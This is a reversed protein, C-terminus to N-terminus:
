YSGGQWTALTQAVWASGDYVLFAGTAPSSPAAIAGIDAATASDPLAGVDSADLVVAGTQGNVSSVSESDLYDTGPVAAVINGISDRKLLGTASIEAQGYVSNQTITNDSAHSLILASIGMSVSVKITGSAVYANDTQATVDGSIKAVVEKGAVFAALIQAYTKDCTVTTVSITYTATFINNEHVHDQRSYLTSIGVDASGLPQPTANSPEPFLKSDTAWTNNVCSAERINGFEDVGTFYHETASLRKTLRCIVFVRNLLTGVPVSCFVPVENQYAEEIEANTGFEYAVFVSSAPITYTDTLGPFKLSKLEINAM